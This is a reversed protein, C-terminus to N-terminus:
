CGSEAFCGLWSLCQKHAELKVGERQAGGAFDAEYEAAVPRGDRRRGRLFKTLEVYLERAAQGHLAGAEEDEGCQRAVHSM